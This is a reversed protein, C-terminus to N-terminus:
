SWKEDLEENNVEVRDNMYLWGHYELHNDFAWSMGRPKGNKNRKSFYEDGIKKIEVVKGNPNTHFTLNEDLNLEVTKMDKNKMHTGRKEEQILINLLWLKTTM